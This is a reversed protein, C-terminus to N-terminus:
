VRAGLSLALRGAVRCLGRPLKRSCLQALSFRFPVKRQRLHFPRPLKELFAGHRPLPHIISFARRLARLRQHFRGHSRQTSAGAKM